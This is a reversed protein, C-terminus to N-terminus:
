VEVGLTCSDYFDMPFETLCDLLVGSGEGQELDRNPLRMKINVESAIINPDKFVSILDTLCHGRRVILTVPLPQPEPLAQAPVNAEGAHVLSLAVTQHSADDEKEPFLTELNPEDMSVALIDDGSIILVKSDDSEGM